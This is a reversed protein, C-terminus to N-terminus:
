NAEPRVSFKSLAKGVAKTSHKSETGGSFKALRAFFQEQEFVRDKKAGTIKTDSTTFVIATEVTMDPYGAERMVARLIEANKDAVPYPNNFTGSGKDNKWTWQPIDSAARINGYFGYTHIGIVSKKTIVILPFTATEGGCALYGPVLCFMGNKRTYNLVRSIFNRLDNQTSVAKGKQGGGASGTQGAHDAATKKSGTGAAASKANGTGAAGPKVNGTRGDKNKVTGTGTNGASGRNKLWYVFNPLTLSNLWDVVSGVKTKKLIYPLSLCLIIVIALLFFNQEKSGAETLLMMHYGKRLVATSYGKQETCFDILWFDDPCFM